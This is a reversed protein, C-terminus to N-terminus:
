PQSQNNNTKSSSQGDTGGSNPLYDHQTGVVSGVSGDGYVSIQQIVGVDGTIDYQYGQGEPSRTGNRIDTIITAFLRLSFLLAPIGIITSISASIAPNLNIFLLFINCTEKLIVFVILSILLQWVRGEMSPLNTVSGQNVAVEQEENPAFIVDFRGSNAFNGSSNDTTLFELM